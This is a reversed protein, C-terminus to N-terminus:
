LENTKLVTAIAHQLGSTARDISYDECKQRLAGSELRRFETLRDALANIDGMPFTWGTVDADIMDPGCGAADSVIAPIGCAMAENVVLGWTEDGPLVLVNAAAYVAPLETQNRFGAFSAPPLASRQGSIVPGSVAPREADFVVNCQSRLQDGLEGNGVFLLHLKRHMSDPAQLNSSSTFLLQAAKVLDWPRKEPIFKGVFLAVFADEAIGWQRRIEAKRMKLKEANERFWENDVFHPSFFLQEDRVGYHKLYERNRRGVYLHADIRPLFWRYPLYKSVRKFISRETRLQSDGRALVPVKNKWAARVGQIFSKRNWGLVLLADYNAPRILDYLEPTNCGSFTQLGPRRSVNKLWRYRYGDLLPVDWEFNVGFGAASQGAADQHHAYLVELDFLTALHRFWPAFYQIPHTALIALCPVDSAPQRNPSAETVPLRHM